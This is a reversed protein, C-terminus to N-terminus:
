HEQPDSSRRAAKENMMTDDPKITKSGANGRNGGGSSDHNSREVGGNEGIEQYFEKDHTEGSRESDKRGTEERSIPNDNNRAM